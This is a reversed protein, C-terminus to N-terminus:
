LFGYGKGYETNAGRDLLIRVVSEHGQCAAARLASGIKKSKDLENFDAGEDLFREVINALGCYSAITLSLVHRLNGDIM